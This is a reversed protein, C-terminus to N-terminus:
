CSFMKEVITVKTSIVTTPTLGAVISTTILGAVLYVFPIQPNRVNDQFKGLGILLCVRREFRYARSEMGLGRRLCEYVWLIRIQGTVYTTVLTALVTTGTVYLLHSKVSMSGIAIYFPKSLFGILTAIVAVLLLIALIPHWLSPRELPVSVRFESVENVDRSCGSGPEMLETQEAMRTM